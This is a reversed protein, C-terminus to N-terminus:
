SDYTNSFSFIPLILMVLIVLYFSVHKFLFSSDFFREQKINGYLLLCLLIMVINWPWIVYNFSKGAPGLMLLIFVHMLIVLPLAVFRLPKVLLGIGTFM